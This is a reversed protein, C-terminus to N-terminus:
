ELTKQGEKIRDFQSKERLWNLESEFAVCLNHQKLITSTTDQGNKNNIIVEIRLAQPM